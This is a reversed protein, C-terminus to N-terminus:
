GNSNQSSVSLQTALVPTEHGSSVTSKRNKTELKDQLPTARPKSDPSSSGNLKPDVFSRNLQKRLTSPTLSGSPYSHRLPSSKGASSPSPDSGISAPNFRTFFPLSRQRPRAWPRRDFDDTVGACTCTATPLSSRENMRRM